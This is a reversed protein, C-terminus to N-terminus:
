EGGGALAKINIPQWYKCDERRFNSNERIGIQAHVCDNIQGSDIVCDDPEMGVELDCHCGYKTALAKINQEMKALVRKAMESFNQDAYNDPYAVVSVLRKVDASNCLDTFHQEKLREVEGVLGDVDGEAVGLMEVLGNLIQQQTEHTDNVRRLERLLRNIYGETKSERQYQDALDELELRVIAPIISESM